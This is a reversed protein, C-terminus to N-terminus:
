NNEETKFKTRHEFLQELPVDFFKAMELSLDVSPNRRGNEIDNYHTSSIGFHEAVERTNLEMEARKEKMWIRKIPRISKVM